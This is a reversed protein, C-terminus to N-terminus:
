GGAAATQRMHAELRELIEHDSPTVIVTAVDFARARRYTTRAEAERGSSLYANALHLLVLPDGPQSSAASGLLGLGEQARGLLVLIQGKTDLLTADAGFKAIAADITKLAEPSATAATPWCWPWTIPRWSITPNGRWRRATFRSRRTARAPSTGCIPSRISCIPRARITISRRRCCVTPRAPWSRTQPFPLSRTPLPSPRRSPAPGPENRTVLSVAEDAFTERALLILLNSLM